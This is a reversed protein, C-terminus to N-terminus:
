DEIHNIQVASNHQGHGHGTRPTRASRIRTLGEIDIIQGPETVNIERRWEQYGEKRVVITHNGPSLEGSCRKHTRSPCLETTNGSGDDVYVTFGKVEASFRVRYTAPELSVIQAAVPPTGADANLAGADTITPAVVASDRITRVIEEHRPEQIRHKSRAIMVGAGVLGAVIGVTALGYYLKNPRNILAVPGSKRGNKGDIKKLTDKLAASFEEISQYRDKATLAMAKAVISDLEVPIRRSQNRESPSTPLRFHAIEPTAADAIFPPTGTLMEYLVAGASYVDWAPTVDGDLRAEPPKYGTTGVSVGPRTLKQKDPGEQAERAFAFNVLKIRTGGTKTPQLFINEPKIDRHIMGIEHAAALGSCIQDMASGIFPLDLEREEAVYQALTKRGVFEMVLRPHDGSVDLEYVKAVNPHEIQTLTQAEKKLRAKENEDFVGELIKITVERQLDGTETATYFRGSATSHRHVEEGLVYKGDIRPSSRRDGLVINTKNETSITRIIADRLAKASQFRQDPDRQLCTMIIKEVAQEPPPLGRAICRERVSQAQESAIRTITDQVNEGEIPYTGTVTYYLAVGVAWIDSRIDVGRGRAMEPSVYYPTGLVTGDQTLEQAGNERIKAVGFDLIKAVPGDEGECLFINEFKIDRHVIPAPRGDSDKNEHAARLGACVQAFIGATEAWPRPMTGREYYTALEQGRLEEMVIAIEGASTMLTKNVKVINPHPLGAIAQAERIFRARAAENSAYNKQLVKIVERRGLGVETKTGVHLASYVIGMAGRGIERVQDYGLRRFEQAVKTSVATALEVEEEEEMKVEPGESLPMRSPARPTYAPVSLRVQEPPAPSHSAAAKVAHAPTKSM